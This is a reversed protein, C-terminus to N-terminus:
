PLVEPIYGATATPKDKRTLYLYIGVAGAAILLWPWLAVGTPKFTGSKYDRWGRNYDRRAEAKSLVGKKGKFHANWYQNFGDAKESTPIESAMDVGHEYFESM